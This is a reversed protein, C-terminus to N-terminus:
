FLSNNLRETLKVTEFAEKVDHVRLIDAGNLLAFTNLLTTGNLSQSADVGLEKYIMSKRSIGTLIPKDLGKFIAIQKMLEYNQDLTKSFGFGPDIIIDKVGANLAKEIQESFFHFISKILDDYVTDNMMTEPTGRMHMMIYPCNHRAAVNMIKPDITGGSIDNILDAGCLIAKEAVEARFTDISILTDPFNSKISSIVESTRLIEEASTVNKAGPRSSYGGIDLITAGEEIMRDAKQLARDIGQVRSDSYFSDPTTNLIGM